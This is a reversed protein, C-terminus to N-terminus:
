VSLVCKIPILDGSQYAQRLGHMVEKWENLCLTGKEPDLCHCHKHIAQFLEQFNQEKVKVGSSRLLTKLLVIYDANKSPFQRM